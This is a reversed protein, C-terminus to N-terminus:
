KVELPTFEEVAMLLEFLAVLVPKPGTLTLSIRNGSHFSLSVEGLAYGSAPLRVVERRRGHDILLSRRKASWSLDARGLQVIRASM